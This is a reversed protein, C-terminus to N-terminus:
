LALFKSNLKYRTKCGRCIPQLKPEDVNGVADLELQANCVTRCNPCSGAGNVLSQTSVIGAKVTDFKDQLKKRIASATGLQSLRDQAVNLAAQTLSLQATLDDEQRAVLAQVFEKAFNGDESLAAMFETDKIFVRYDKAAMKCVVSRLTTDIDPTSHYVEKIVDAFDKV